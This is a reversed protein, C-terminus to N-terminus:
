KKDPLKCAIAYRTLREVLTMVVAEGINKKGLVLDIEWDGFRARDNIIAPRQEISMGLRKKAQKPKEPVNKRRRLRPIRPLDLPKLDLLGAHIYRYVTKTSPM